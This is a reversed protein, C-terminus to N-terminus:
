LLEVLFTCTIEQVDVGGGGMTSFSNQQKQTYKCTPIFRDFKSDVNM